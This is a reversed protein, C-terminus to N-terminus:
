AIREAIIELVLPTMMVTMPDREAQDFGQVLTHVDAASLQGLERLRIAGARLFTSPWQWVFDAPRVAFVLPRVQRVRFGSETLMRPLALGVDPDGGTERWSEMVAAVFLDMAPRRPM